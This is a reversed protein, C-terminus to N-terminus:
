PLRLEQARRIVYEAEAQRWDEEASGDGGSRSQYLEHARTAIRQHDIQHALRDTGANSIAAEAPAGGPPRTVRNNTDNLQMRGRSRRGFRRGRGEAFYCQPPLVVDRRVAGAGGPSVAGGDNDLDGAPTREAREAMGPRAQESASLAAVGQVILAGAEITELDFPRGTPTWGVPGHLYPGVFATVAATSLQPGELLINHSHNCVTRWEAPSAYDLAERELVGGDATATLM